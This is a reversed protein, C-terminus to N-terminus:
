CIRRMSVFKPWSKSQQFYPQRKCCILSNRICEVLDLPVSAVGYLHCLFEYIKIEVERCLNQQFLTALAAPFLAFLLSRNLAIENVGYLTGWGSFSVVMTMLTDLMFPISEKENGVLVLANQVSSILEDIFSILPKCNQAKIFLQAFDYLQGLFYAKLVKSDAQNNVLSKAIGEVLKMIPVTPHHKRYAFEFYINKQLTMLNEEGTIGGQFANDFYQRPLQVLVDIYKRFIESDLAFRTFFSQLMECLHEFNSEDSYTRDLAKGVLQIAQVFGSSDGFRKDEAREALFHLALHIYQKYIPTQVSETIDGIRAFTKLLDEELMATECQEYLYNEVLRKATGSYPMQKIAIQLCYDRMEFCHLFYEHLFCWNLPPIPKPYPCAVIRLLQILVHESANSNTAFKTSQSILYNVITALIGTRPLYKLNSPEPRGEPTQYLGGRFTDMERAIYHSVLDGAAEIASLNIYQILQIWCEPPVSGTSDALSVGDANPEPEAIGQRFLEPIQRMTLSDPNFHKLTALAAGIIEGDDYDTVYHWLTSIINNVLREQELSIVKILPVNAFFRCLSRIVRPRQEHAFRSGLVKWVSVINVVRNECLSSIADLSLCVAAENNEDNPNSLVESFLNVLDEGHQQPNILCVERIAYARSVIYEWPDEDPHPSHRSTDKLLDYLLPYTRPEAKWLRLYLDLSTARDLDKTLAKLIGIVNEKAGMSALTQLIHLRRGGDKQQALGYLLPIMCHAAQVENRQMLAVLGRFSGRWVDEEYATSIFIARYLSGLNDSFCTCSLAANGRAYNELAFPSSAFWACLLSWKALDAHYYMPRLPLRVTTRSVTSENDCAQLVKDCLSLHQTTYSPQGLLQIMAEKALMRSFPGCAPLITNIIWVVGGVKVPSTIPLLDTVVCLLVDLEPLPDHEVIIECTERLASLCRKPDYNLSIYDKTIAALYTVIEVRMKLSKEDSTLPIVNLLELLLSVTYCTQHANNDRRWALIEYVIAEAKQDLLSTEVLLQWLKRCDPFQRVNSFLHLLVPRLFEVANAHVVADQSTLISTTMDLFENMSAADAKDLLLIMPHQPAKLEFQCVYGRGNESTCRRRLDMLLLEVIATGVAIFQTPTTTPLFAMFIGMAQGQDVIGEAVLLLLTEVALQCIRSNDSKCLNKILELESDALKRNSRQSIQLVKEIHAAASHLTLKTHIADM